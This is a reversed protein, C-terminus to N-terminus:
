CSKTSFVRLYFLQWPLRVLSLNVLKKGRMSLGLPRGFNWTTSDVTESIMPPPSRSLGEGGGKTSPTPVLCRRVSLTLDVDSVDKHPSNHMQFHNPEGHLFNWLTDNGINLVKNESM